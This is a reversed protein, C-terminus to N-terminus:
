KSNERVLCEIVEWGREISQEELHKLNQHSIIRNINEESPNMGEKVLAERIDKKSWEISLIAESNDM